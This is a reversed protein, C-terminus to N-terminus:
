HKDKKSPLFLELNESRFSTSNASSTSFLFPTVTEGEVESLVTVGNL